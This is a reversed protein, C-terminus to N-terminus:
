EASDCALLEGRALVGLGGLQVLFDALAQAPGIGVLVGVDLGAVVEVLEIGLALLPLELVRPLPHGLDRLVM